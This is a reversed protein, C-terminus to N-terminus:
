SQADTCAQGQEDFRVVLTHAATIAAAVRELDELREASMSSAGRPLLGIIMPDIQHEDGIEPDGIAGVGRRIPQFVLLASKRDVAVVVVGAPEVIESSFIFRTAQCWYLFDNIWAFANNQAEANQPWECFMVLRGYKVSEVLFRPAVDAGHAVIGLSINLEAQLEPDITSAV